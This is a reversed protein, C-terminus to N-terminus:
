VTITLELERAAHRMAETVADINAPDFAQFHNGPIAVWPISNCGTVTEWGTISTRPDSRDQLWIHEMFAADTPHRWGEQSILLFVRPIPAESGHPMYQSRTSPLKPTQFSGLLNACSAFSRRVFYRAARTAETSASRSSEQISTVADIIAPPLPQHKLPAPADILVTGVIHHGRTLLRRAVEFAVVGGFSWGGMLLPGPSVAAITDAYHDAMQALSAWADIPDLFKPDHLAYVARNMAKLRHYHTCIGSGDHILFLPPQNQFAERPKEIIEIAGGNLKLM